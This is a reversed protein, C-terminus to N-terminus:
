RAKRSCDSARRSSSSDEWIVGISSSSVVVVKLESKSSERASSSLCDSRDLEWFVLPGGVVAAGKGCWGWFWCCWGKRMMPGIVSRLDMGEAVWMSEMKGPVM